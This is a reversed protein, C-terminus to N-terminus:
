QQVGKNLLVVNDPALTMAPTEGKAVIADIVSEVWKIQLVPKGSKHAKAIDLYRGFQKGDETLKWNGAADKELYGVKALLKNAGTPSLGFHKGIDTAILLREQAKAILNTNESLELINLSTAKSAIRNASLTANNDDLGLCKFVSHYQKLLSAALKYRRGDDTIRTRNGRAIALAEDPRNSVLADFARIVRLHFQPSIWTAYAYVLEKCVYTGRDPGGNITKIPEGIVGWKQTSIPSRELEKILDQTGDLRLWRSPQHRDEGGAMQHFDNLSFRDYPDQHVSTNEVMFQTTM